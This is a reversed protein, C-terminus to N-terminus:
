QGLEEELSRIRVIMDDYGERSSLTAIVQEPPGATPLGSLLEHFEEVLIEAFSAAKRKHRFGKRNGGGASLMLGTAAHTVTWRKHTDSSQRFEATWSEPRTKSGIVEKIGSPHVALPGFVRAGHALIRVPKPSVSYHTYLMIPKTVWYVRKGGILIVRGEASTRTYTM